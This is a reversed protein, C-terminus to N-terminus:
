NNSLWYNARRSEKERLKKYSGVNIYKRLHSILFLHAYQPCFMRARCIERRSFLFFFIWTCLFRTNRTRDIRGEEIVRGRTYRTMQRSVRSLLFAECAARVILRQGAFWAHTGGGGGGSGWSREDDGTSRNRPSGRYFFLRRRTRRRSCM